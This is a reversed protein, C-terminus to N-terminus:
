CGKTFKNCSIIKHGYLVSKNALLCTAAIFEKGDNESQLTQRLLYKCDACSNVEGEGESECSGFIINFLDFDSM